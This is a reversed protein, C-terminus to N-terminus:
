QEDFFYYHNLPNDLRSIIDDLSKFIEDEIENIWYTKQLDKLKLLKETKYIWYDLCNIIAIKQYDKLTSMDTKKDWSYSKINKLKWTKKNILVNECYYKYTNDKTNFWLKELVKNLKVKKNITCKKREILNM